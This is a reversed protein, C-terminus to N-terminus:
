FLVLCNSKYIGELALGGSAHKLVEDDSCSEREVKVSNVLDQPKSVEQLHKHVDISMVEEKVELESKMQDEESPTTEENKENKGKVNKFFTKAKLLFSPNAILKKLGEKEKENKCNSKLTKYEKEGFQELDQIKRINLNNKFIRTWKIPDLGEMRFCTSYFHLLAFILEVLKHILSTYQIEFTQAINRPRSLKEM